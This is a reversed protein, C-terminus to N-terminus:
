LSYKMPVHKIGSKERPPATQVFGLRAYIPEAYISSNVTIERVEPHKRRIEALSYEFLARGIGRSHYEPDVFFLCIHNTDRVEQFGVIRGNERACIMRNKKEFRELLAEETVFSSFTNKGERSYDCGVYRDFATTILSVCSPIDEPRIPEINM